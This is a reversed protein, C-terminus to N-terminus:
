FQAFRAAAALADTDLVFDLILLVAVGIAVILSEVLALRVLLTRRHPPM